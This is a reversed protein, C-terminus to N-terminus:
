EDVVTDADLLQTKLASKRIKRAKMLVELLDRTFARLM